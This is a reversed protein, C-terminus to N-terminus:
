PQVKINGVVTDFDPSILDIMSELTTLIVGVMGPRKSNFIAMKLYLPIEEGADTTLYYRGGLVGVVVGNSNTIINSTTIRLGPYDGSIEIIANM